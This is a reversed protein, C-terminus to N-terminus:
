LVLQFPAFNRQMGFGIWNAVKFADESGSIAPCLPVSLWNGPKMADRFSKGILGEKAVCWGYQTSFCIALGYDTCFLCIVRVNQVSAQLNATDMILSELSEKKTAVFNALDDKSRCQSLHALLSAQARPTVVVRPPTVIAAPARFAEPRVALLRGSERVPESAQVAEFDEEPEPEPTDAEIRLYDLNMFEYEPLEDALNYTNVPYFNHWVNRGIDKIRTIFWYLKGNFVDTKWFQLVAQFRM